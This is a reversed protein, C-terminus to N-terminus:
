LHWLRYPALLRAVAPNEVRAKEGAGERGEFLDGIMLLMAAKLPAPVASLSPYGAQYRVRVAGAVGCATIPWSTGAAPVIYGRQAIPGSPAVVQYAAEDLTTETGDAAVTVVSSVSLLPAHPIVIEGSRAWISGVRRSPFEELWLEWDQPLMARGTADEVAMRAATIWGAILADEATDDVRLHARAESLLVPETAPVAIQRLDM